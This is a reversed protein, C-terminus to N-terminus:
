REREDAGVGRAVAGAPPRRRGEHSEDALDGEVVDRAPQDGGVHDGHGLARGGVRHALDRGLEEVGHREARGM